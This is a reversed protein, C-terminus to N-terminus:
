KPETIISRGNSDTTSVKGNPCRAFYNKGDEDNFRYVTCGDISTYPEPKPATKAKVPFYFAGTICVLVTVAVGVLVLLSRHDTKPDHSNSPTYTTM